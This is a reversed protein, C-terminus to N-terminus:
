RRKRKRKFKVTDSATANDLTASVTGVGRGRGTLSTTAQCNQTLASTGSLTGKTTSFTILTGDPFLCDNTASSDSSVISATITKTKGKRIQAPADITLVLFPIADVAAVNAGGITDCGTAGPGGNCGFFNNEADVAGDADDFQIGATSNGVIRNGEVKTSGSVSDAAFNIGTDGRVLTNGLISIASNPTGTDNRLRVGAFGSDTITNNSVTIDSNTGGLQVANNNVDSFRNEDITSNETFFLLVRLENRAPNGNTGRFTNQTIKVNDNSAAPGSGTLLIAANVQNEFVNQDITLDDVSSDAYIANGAAAGPVNNDSFRNKQITSPKGDANNASIGITNDTIVNNVIQHDGTAPSIAIGAGISPDASNTIVFGDIVVGDATLSVGGNTAGDGLIVSERNAGSRNRADNGAQAGRLEVQKNVQVSEPYQGACVLIEQGPDAADIADQISTFTAAACNAGAPGAGAANDNVTFNAPVGASASAPLALVTAALAGLAAVHRKRIFM